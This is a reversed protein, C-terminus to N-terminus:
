QYRMILYKIIRNKNEKNPKIIKQNIKEIKIKNEAKIKQM